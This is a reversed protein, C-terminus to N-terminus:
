ALRGKIRLYCDDRGVVEVSGANQWEFFRAQIRPDSLRRDDGFYSTILSRPVETVGSGRIRDMGVQLADLRFAVDEDLLEEAAPGSLAAGMGIFSEFAMHRFEKVGRSRLEEETLHDALTLGPIETGIGDIEWGIWKEKGLLSIRQIYRAMDHCRPRLSLPMQLGRVLKLVTNQLM